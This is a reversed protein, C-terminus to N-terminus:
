KESLRTLHQRLNSIRDLLINSKSSKERSKVDLGFTKGRDVVEHLNPELDVKQGLTPLFDKLTYNIVERIKSIRMCLDSM